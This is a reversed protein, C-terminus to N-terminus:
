AKVVFEITLCNPNADISLFQNALQRVDSWSEPQELLGKRCLECMLERRTPDTLYDVKSESSMIERRRRCRTCTAKVITSSCAHCKSRSLLPDPINRSWSKAPEWCM